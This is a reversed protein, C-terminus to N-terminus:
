KGSLSIRRPIQRLAVDSFVEFPVTQAGDFRIQPRGSFNLSAFSGYM